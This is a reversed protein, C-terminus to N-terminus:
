GKYHQFIKQIFISVLPRIWNSIMLFTNYNAIEMNMQIGIDVTM